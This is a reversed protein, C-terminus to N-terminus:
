PDLYQLSTHCLSVLKLNLPLVLMLIKSYFSIKALFEIALPDVILVMVVYSSTKEKELVEM